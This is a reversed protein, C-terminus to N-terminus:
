RRTAQGRFSKDFAVLVDAQKLVSRGTKKGTAYFEESVDVSTRWRSIMAGNSSGQGATYTTDASGFSGSQNSAPSSM